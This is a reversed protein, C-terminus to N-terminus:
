KRMNQWSFGIQSEIKTLELIYTSAHTSLLAGQIFYDYMQQQYTMSM